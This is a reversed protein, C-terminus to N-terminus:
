GRLTGAFADFLAENCAGDLAGSVQNLLWSRAISVLGLALLLGACLVTLMVLTDISGSTLVRDYVQLMYLPVTLMAVNIFCSFLGVKHFERAFADLPRITQETRHKLM